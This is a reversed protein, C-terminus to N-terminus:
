KNMNALMEFYRDEMPLWENIFRDLMEPSRKELRALQERRDIVLMRKVDYVNGFYPHFSYVGEIVTVPKKEVTITDSLTQTECNYKRVSFDDETFIRDFIESKMREYDINGGTEALRSATRQEPRLFYDDCHFVNCDYVESFTKSLTTKGAAAMGDIGVVARGKKSLVNETEIFLPLAEAYKIDAVRYHPAYKKRYIESHSLPPCGLSIYKDIFGRTEEKDFPLYDASKLKELEGEFEAPKKEKHSNASLVFIKNVTEPSLLGKVAALNIRAFGGGIDDYLPVNKDYEVGELETKLMKLSTAADKIMHEPGFYQQFLLKVIDALQKEPRLSLRTRIDM